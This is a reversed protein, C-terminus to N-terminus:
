VEEIINVTYRTIKTFFANLEFVTIKTLLFKM